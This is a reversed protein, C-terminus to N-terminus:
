KNPKYIFLSVAFLLFGSGLGIFLGALFEGSWFGIGMGLLVGAPIFLAGPHDKDRM